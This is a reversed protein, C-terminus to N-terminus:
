NYIIEFKMSDLQQLENADLEVEYGGGYKQNYNATGLFLNMLFDPNDGVFRTHRFVMMYGPFFMIVPSQVAQAEGDLWFGRYTNFCRPGTHTPQVSIIEGDSNIYTVSFTVQSSM